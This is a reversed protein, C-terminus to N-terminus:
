SKNSWYSRSRQSLKSQNIRLQNQIGKQNSKVPNNEDQQIQLQNNCYRAISKQTNLNKFLVIRQIVAKPFPAFVGKVNHVLHLKKWLM